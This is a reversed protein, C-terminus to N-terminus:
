RDAGLALLNAMLRYAGPVGAPFQRFLALGTYVYTGEGYPAVLLVGRKPEEGPDAMELLPTYRDDWSNLFYLGREQVWGQWDADTIENPSNFIPHEPALLTVQAEEDTVRDHPRSITVPYPAIGPATYQYQNYQVIMTGGREVYDLLRRNHTVLDARGEYARHGVVVVDYPELPAAALDAETLQDVQVGLQALALPVNDGTAGIYAVRLGQAVEVDVVEIELLADRYLPRPRIHPYDVLTYGSTHLEAGAEVRAQVAHRGASVEAPAHLTFELVREEGPGAFDLAVVDPMATWGRPMELRLQGTIGEPAESVVRLSLPLPEGAAAMPLVTLQPEVQLSVAPVVRVPRRFEGSRTDVGRYTALEGLTLPAGRVAFSAEVRVEDPEFPIGVLVDDPWQYRAGDRPLRLFYPETYPADAPVTVAFTRTVLTGAPVQNPVPDDSRATWGAPLAPALDHLAIESSGGNWLQVELSFTQGPVVAEDDAIADIRVRAARQLASSLAERERALHFRLEEIEAGAAAAREVAQDLLGAAEVLFYVVEEPQLPNFVRRADDITAQYRDILPVIEAAPPASEAATRVRAALTTDVHAFLSATGAGDLRTAARALRTAQPGATLARGMDQSRHRSRSAMAVQYHSGGLLPDLTGTRLEVTPAGEDAGFLQYFHATAHPRLGRRIQEPFRAPDAAAQFAERAIVGAAQHQGHGDRPTGSFVSVIIDPRVRRVVAVADALLEERPWQTFAEEASKSFGYDIARSFYQTAGDLRRAALLEEARVLGLAEQLESGIGNQGGEGRTLSLYAVDAGQGLALTSLVHTQEDDPHAAIMLVRKATGLRRLDLGLAAAGEYETVRDQAGAGTALLPLLFAALIGRRLRVMMKM